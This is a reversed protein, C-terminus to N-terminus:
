INIHDMTIAVRVVGGGLEQCRWGVDMAFKGRVFNRSGGLEHCRLGM